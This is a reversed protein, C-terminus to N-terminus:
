CYSESTDMSDDGIIKLVNSDYVISNTLPAQYNDETIEMKTIALIEKEIELEKELEIDEQSKRRKEAEERRLEYFSDMIIECEINSILHEKLNISIDLADLNSAVLDVGSKATLDSDQIFLDKLSSHQSLIPASVDTINSGTISLKEINKNQELYNVGKDTIKTRLLYLTKIATNQGIFKLVDDTLLFPHEAGGLELLTVSSNKRILEELMESPIKCYTLNLHKITKNNGFTKIMKKFQTDYEERYNILRNHSLNLTELPCKALATAGIHTIDNNSLDLDKLTPISALVIASDDNINNGYLSLTTITPNKKLATALLIIQETTLETGIDGDYVDSVNINLTTSNFRNEEIEKILENFNKSKM